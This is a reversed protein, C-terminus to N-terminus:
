TTEAVHALVSESPPSKSQRSTERKESSDSNESQDPHYGSHFVIAHAVLLSFLLLAIQHPFTLGAAILTIEETPAASFAIFTAGIATAGLKHLLAGWPGEDDAQHRDEGRKFVANAVAAGLSLPLAQVAVLGAITAPPDDLSIRNLVLLIAFTALAGVAVAHIAQDLHSHLTTERKFGISRVLPFCFLLALTLLALSQWPPLQAGLWWTEMTLLLPIGFLLAGGLARTLDHLEHALPGSRPQPM